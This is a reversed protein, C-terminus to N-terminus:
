LEYVYIWQYHRNEFLSSASTKMYYLFGQATMVEYVMSAMAAVEACLVDYNCGEYDMSTAAKAKGAM